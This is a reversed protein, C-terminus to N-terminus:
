HPAPRPGPPAQLAPAFPARPLASTTVPSFPSKEGIMEGQFLADLRTLEHDAVMVFLPNPQEIGSWVQALKEFLVLTDELSLQKTRIAAAVRWVVRAGVQTGSSTTEVILCNGANVTLIDGNPAIALGLPQKLAIAPNACIKM